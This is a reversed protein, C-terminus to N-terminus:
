LSKIKIVWLDIFDSLGVKYMGFKEHRVRCTKLDRKRTRSLERTFHHKRDVDAEARPSPLEQPTRQM